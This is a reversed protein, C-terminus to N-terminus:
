EVHATEAAIGYEEEDVTLPHGSLRHVVYVVVPHIEVVDTADLNHFTSRRCEVTRVGYTTHHVDDTPLIEFRPCGVCTGAVAGESMFPSATGAEREVRRFPVGLGTELMGRNVRDVQRLGVRGLLDGQFQHLLHLAQGVVFRHQCVVRVQATEVPLLGVVHLFPQCPMGGVLQCDSPPAAIEEAGTLAIGVVVM